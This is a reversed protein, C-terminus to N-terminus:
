EMDDMAHIGTGQLPSGGARALLHHDTECDAAPLPARQPLLRAGEDGPGTHPAGLEAVAPPCM